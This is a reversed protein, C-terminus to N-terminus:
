NLFIVVSILIFFIILGFIKLNNNEKSIKDNENSKETIDLKEEDEQAIIQDEEAIIQQEAIIQEEEAIIQEEEAIIQQIEPIIQEEGIIQEEEDIIQEIEPIIQEEEEDIIHEIEPIIPEDEEAIIQSGFANFNIEVQKKNPAPQRCIKIGNKVKCGDKGFEGKRKSKSTFGEKLEEIIDKKFYKKLIIDDINM